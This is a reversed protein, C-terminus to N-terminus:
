VTHWALVGFKACKKCQRNERPGFARIPPLFPAGHQFRVATLTLWEAGVRDIVGMIKEKILRTDLGHVFPIKIDLAKRTLGEYRIEHEDWIKKIWLGRISPEIKKRDCWLHLLQGNSLKRLGDELQRKQIFEAETEPTSKVIKTLNFCGDGQQNGVATCWESLNM